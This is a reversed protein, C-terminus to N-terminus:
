RTSNVLLPQRTINDEKDDISITIESADVIHNRERKSDEAKGWLVIYLGGIIAVAGILSGIHLEEHLTIAALVVTILTYLPMFMACYVPGRVSICWSQLYFCVASGFIGAFLCAWLETVTNIKWASLNPELFFVIPATQLSSLLCLWLAQPLPDVYKCIPVQLILLLSWCSTSVLLCGVALVWRYDVSDLATGLNLYPNSSNLIRPGKYFTLIMTGGVCVLTGSIKAWTIMSRLQVNELGVSAAMVFTTSPVLNSLASVLSANGLNLGLFHLIKNGTGGFLAALFILCFGRLSVSMGAVGSRGRLFFLAPLLALTAISQRYVVFVLSSFGQQFAAKALLNMVALISHMTVMAMFPKYAELSFAGM